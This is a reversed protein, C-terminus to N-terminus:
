IIPLPDKGPYPPRRKANVGGYLASTLSLTSSYMQKGEPDEDGTGHRIEGKGKGTLIM